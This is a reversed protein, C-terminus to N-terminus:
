FNRTAHLLRACQAFTKLISLLVEDDVVFDQAQADIANMAPIMQEDTSLINYLIFREIDLRLINIKTLFLHPRVLANTINDRLDRLRATECYNFEVVGAHSKSFLVRKGHFYTVLLRKLHLL